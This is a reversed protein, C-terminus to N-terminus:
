IAADMECLLKNVEELVLMRVIKGTANKPLTDFFYIRRPLAYGQIRGRCWSLLENETLTSGERLVVAAVVREGWKEDPQGVVAVEQVTPHEYLIREVETPYVNEGGTIIMDEKRDVLYVYGDEDMRGLDGTYLWGDIIKKETLDPRNWYGAMITEGRATIEGVEGRPVERGEKMIRVEVNFVPRGCSKLFSISGEAEQEFGGTHEQRSLCTIVPSFETQGYLQLFTEKGFIGVARKLLSPPMPSGVYAIARLSSLDAHHINEDELLMAIMTPVLHSTTIREHVIVDLVEKVNFEPMIVMTAGRCLHGLALANGGIHFLPMVSLGRDTPVIGMEMVQIKATELLNRHSLIVGKPLGTTGSTYVIAARTTDDFVGGSPGNNDSARCKDSVAEDYFQMRSHPEKTVIITKLKVNYDRFSAALDAYEKSVVLVSAECDSLIYQLKDMPLRYNLPVYTLGYKYCSIFTEIMESSNKSLVAVRDGPNVGVSLFYEGLASTRRDLEQYTITKQGEKLAVRSGYMGSTSGFSHSLWNM